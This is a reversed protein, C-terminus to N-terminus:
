RQASVDLSDETRPSRQGNSGSQARRAGQGHRILNDAIDRPDGVRNQKCWKALAFSGGESVASVQEPIMAEDDAEFLTSVVPLLSAVLSEGRRRLTKAYWDATEPENALDVLKAAEKLAALSKEQLWPEISM